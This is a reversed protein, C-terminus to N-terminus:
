ENEAGNSDSAFCKKEQEMVSKRLLALNKQGSKVVLCKSPNVPSKDDKHFSILSIMTETVTEHRQNIEARSTVALLVEDSTNNYVTRLQDNMSKLKVCECLHEQPGAKAAGAESPAPTIPASPTIAKTDVKDEEEMLGNKQRETPDVYKKQAFASNILFSMAMLVLLYKM